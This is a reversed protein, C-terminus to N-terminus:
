KEPFYMFSADYESSLGRSSMQPDDLSSFTYMFKLFIYVHICINDYICEHKLWLSLKSSNNLVCMLLNFIATEECFLSLAM